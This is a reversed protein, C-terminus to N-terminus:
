PRSPTRPRGPGAIAAIRGDRIAVTAPRVGDPTVAREARIVPAYEAM